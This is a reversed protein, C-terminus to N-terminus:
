KWYNFLYALDDQVQAVVWTSDTSHYPNGTSIMKGREPRSLKHGDVTTRELPQVDAGLRDSLQAIRHREFSRPHGQGRNGNRRPWFPRGRMGGDSLGITRSKIPAKNM